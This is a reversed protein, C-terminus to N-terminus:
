RQKKKRVGVNKRNSSKDKEKLCGLQIKDIEVQASLPKLNEKLKMKDRSKVSGGRNYTFWLFGEDLPKLVRDKPLYCTEYQRETLPYSVTKGDLLKFDTAWEFANEIETCFGVQSYNKKEIEYEKEDYLTDSELNFTRIKVSDVTMSVSGLGLPKGMGLKYGHNSMLNSINLLFILEDLQKKSIREFYIDEKFVVGEKLLRVSRNRKTKLPNKNCFKHHWYFKRGMIKIPNKDTYTYIKGNETYYDYTWFDAKGELPRQLYMETASIKPMALEELVTFHDEMSNEVTFGNSLRADAFRLRSAVAKEGVMGFLQCAPCIAKKSKCPRFDLKKEGESFIKEISTTYSEKTICAPSLYMIRQGSNSSTIISYYVPLYKRQGLKLKKWCIEYEKYWGKQEECLKNIKKDQYTQLIHEFAKITPDEESFIEVLKDYTKINFIKAWKKNVGKEGKLLVGKYKWKREDLQKEEIKQLPMNTVKKNGKYQFENYAVYDGDQFEKVLDLKIYSIDNEKYLTFKDNEYLLMGCKYYDSTRKYFPKNLDIASMCSGTIAEYVSRIMGRIESGPIVPEKAQTEGSEENEYQHYSFFEYRKHERKPEEGKKGDDCFELRESTINPIFLPTETKIEVTIKGTLDGEKYEGRKCESTLPYFHYPNVFMYKLEDSM